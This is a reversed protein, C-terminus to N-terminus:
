VKQMLFFVYGFEDSYDKVIRAEQRLEALVGALNKDTKAQADLREARELLPTLYEDWWGAKELIFHGYVEYGAQKALSINGKISTMEPYCGEFFAKAKPAPKDAFWVLESAVIQGAPKLLPRWMQLGRKFGAIFISGEAWILDIGEVPETLSTMDQHVIKIRDALGAAGAAQRLKELFPPHFDVATIMAAPLAKALNVTQKGPGCGIDYIVPQAPLPKILSLAKMTAADSGPGERPIDCHLLFFSELM